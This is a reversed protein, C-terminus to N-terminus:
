GTCRRSSPRCSSTSCTTCRASPPTPSSPPCWAGSCGGRGRAACSPRCRTWRTRCAHGSSGDITSVEPVVPMNPCAGPMELGAARSFHLRMAPHMMPGWLRCWPQFAFVGSGHTRQQRFGAAVKYHVNGPGGYEMRTKVLTVPCLCTAALARSLGGVFFADTATLKHGTRPGHLQIFLVTTSRIPQTAGLLSLFLLSLHNKKAPGTRRCGCPVHDSELSTCIATYASMYCRSFQVLSLVAADYMVSLISFQLAPTCRAQPGRHCDESRGARHLAARRRPEAAVGHTRHGEVHRQLVHHEAYSPIDCPRGLGLGPWQGQCTHRAGSRRARGSMHCIAFSQRDQTTCNHAAPWSAMLMSPEPVLM